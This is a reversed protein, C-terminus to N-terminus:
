SRKTGGGGTAPLPRAPPKPRAGRTDPLQLWENFRRGSFGFAVRVLQGVGQCPIGARKSLRFTGIIYHGDQQVEELTAGCPLGGNFNIVEDRTRLVFPQTQSVIAPTDFFRAAAEPRGARVADAWAAIVPRLRRADAATFDAASPTATAEPATPLPLAGVRPPPTTLEFRQAVVGDNSGCGALPVALAALVVFRFRAM